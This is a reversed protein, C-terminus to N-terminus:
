LFAGHVSIKIDVNKNAVRTLGTRNGHHEWVCKFDNPKGFKQSPAYRVFTRPCQQSELSKVQRMGSSPEQVSNAKWVKSKACVQRLNKSVTPKGFKQSPAYRVFTRPCQQSELSKVQRMGSSPEQVSNSELSKVQRMGSSPEQVSNAKWVKSKVCVQRLNKSVTPKGFKQSSAYRVFTRPCQQSELSKVQRMGSSPEQVSNAKWVKSKVCVQRLNKSVTPKGFKQSSAYRVFTRPCQQSELSKVQRM